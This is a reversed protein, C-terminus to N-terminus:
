DPKDIGPEDAQLRRVTNAVQTLLAGIAASMRLQDHLTTEMADQALRQETQDIEWLVFQAQERLTARLEAELSISEVGISLELLRQLFEVQSWTGTLQNSTRYLSLREGDPLREISELMESELISEDKAHQDLEYAYIADGARERAVAPPVAMMCVGLLVAIFLADAIFERIRSSPVVAVPAQDGRSDCRPALM